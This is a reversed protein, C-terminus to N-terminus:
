EDLVFAKAPLEGYAAEPLVQKYIHNTKIWQILDKGESSQFDIKRVFLYYPDTVMTGNADMEPFNAVHELTLPDPHYGGSFKVFHSPHSLIKNRVEPSNNGVICLFSEDPIFSFEMYALMQFAEDSNRIFDVFERTLAIWQPQKCLSWSPYPPYILGAEEMYYMRSDQTRVHPRTMREAIEISMQWNQILSMGKFSGSNLFRHLERSSRLPFSHASLNIVVDWTAMDYLEWFGTLQIWVLSAHSWTGFIRNKSLFVNGPEFEVNRRHHNSEGDRDVDDFIESKEEDMTSFEEGNNGNPKRGNNHDPLTEDGYLREIAAKNNGEFTFDESRKNSADPHVESELDTVDGLDSGDRLPANWNDSQLPTTPSDEKAKRNKERKVKASKPKLRQEHIKRNRENIWEKALVWLAEYGADVHILFIASGDDLVRVIEKVNELNEGDGHVMILYAIGYRRKVINPTMLNQPQLNPLVPDFFSRPDLRHLFKSATLKVLSNSGEAAVYCAFRKLSPQHLTPYRKMLREYVSIAESDVLEVVEKKSPNAFALPARKSFFYTFLDFTANNLMPCYDFGEISIYRRYLLSRVNATEDATILSDIGNSHQYSDFVKPIDGARLLGDYYAEGKADSGSVVGVQGQQEGALGAM